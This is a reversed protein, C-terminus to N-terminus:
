KRNDKPSIKRLRVRLKDRLTRIKEDAGQSERQNNRTNPNERRNDRKENNDKVM